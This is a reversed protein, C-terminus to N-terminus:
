DYLACLNPPSKYNLKVDALVAQSKKLQQDLIVTRDLNQCGQARTRRLWFDTRYENLLILCWCLGILGWMKSLRIIVEWGYIRHIGDIWQFKLGETLETGPHFLMDGALKAPDDWGFYEFDIFRLIGDSQRLCNHLGFDSPSLTRAFEPLIQDYKRNPWNTKSWNSVTDVLPVVDGSIYDSLDVSPISRAQLSSIRERIQGELQQGSFIAASAPPFRSFEPKKRLSHLRELFDIAQSLEASKTGIVKKGEIWRYLGINLQRSCGLGEPVSREGYSRLIEFSGYEAFLRDHNSDDVYIKLAAEIGNSMQARAIGSNGRGGIWEVEDGRQGAIEKVVSSLEETTWNGLLLNEIQTWSETVQVASFGAGGDPSFGLKKTSNPFRKNELIEPLDDIFWDFKAQVIRSIKEERTSCFEVSNLLSDKQDGYIGSDELFQIASPRLPIRCVDFHGYESKHSIVDVSVGLHKCRWLFKFVGPYLSAKSMGAGYVQGQLSQWQKEGGTIRLLRNKIEGKNGSWERPVFGLERANDLFARDYCILTNDLDVGLRM